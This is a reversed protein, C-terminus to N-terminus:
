QPISHRGSRPSGPDTDEINTTQPETAAHPPHAMLQELAHLAIAPQLTRQDAAHQRASQAADTPTAGYTPPALFPYSSSYPAGTVHPPALAVRPALPAPAPADPVASMVHPQGSEDYRIATEGSPPPFGALSRPRPLIDGSATPTATAFPGPLPAPAAQEEAVGRSRRPAKPSAKPTPAAEQERRDARLASRTASRVVFWIAILALAIAAAIWAVTVFAEPTLEPTSM